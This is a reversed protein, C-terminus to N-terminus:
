ENSPEIRLQQILHKNNNKRTLVYVRFTTNDTKLTGIVFCSSEKEGKHLIHFSRAKNKKFFDSVIGYSQQKSFIDNRNDIVLEVNDNFYAALEAADGNSLANTIDRPIEASQAMCGITCFGTLLFLMILLYTKRM